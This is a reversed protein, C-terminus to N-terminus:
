QQEDITDEEVIINYNSEIIKNLDYFLMSLTHDNKFDFETIRYKNKVPNNSDEYDKNIIIGKLEKSKNNADSIICRLSYCDNLEYVNCGISKLKQVRNKLQTLAENKRNVNHDYYVDVSCGDLIKLQIANCYDSTWSLNGGFFVIKNKSNSIFSIVKDIRKERKYRKGSEYLNYLYYIIAFGFITSVIIKLYNPISLFQFVIGFLGSLDVAIISITNKKMKGRWITIFELKFINILEKLDIYLAFGASKKVFNSMIQWYDFLNLCGPPHRKKSVLTAISKHM